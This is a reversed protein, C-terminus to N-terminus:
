NIIIAVVHDVNPNISTGFLFSFCFLTVTHYCSLHCETMRMRCGEGRDWCDSTCVNARAVPVMCKCGHRAGFGPEMSWHRQPLQSDKHVRAAVPDGILASYKVTYSCYSVTYRTLNTCDCLRVKSYASQLSCAARQTPSPCPATGLSSQGGTQSSL